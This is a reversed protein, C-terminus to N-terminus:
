HNPVALLNLCLMHLEELQLEQSFEAYIQMGNEVIAGASKCEKLKCWREEDKKGRPREQKM